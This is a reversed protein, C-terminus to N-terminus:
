KIKLASEDDLITFDDSGEEDLLEYELLQLLAKSFSVLKADYIEEIKYWASRFSVSPM